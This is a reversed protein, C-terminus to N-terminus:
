CSGGFAETKEQTTSFDQNLIAAPVLANKSFHFAINMGPSARPMALWLRTLGELFYTFLIFLLSIVELRAWPVLTAPALEPECMRPDKPAYCM